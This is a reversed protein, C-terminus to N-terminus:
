TESKGNDDGKTKNLPKDDPYLFFGMADILDKVKIEAVVAADISSQEIAEFLTDHIEHLKGLVGTLLAFEVIYNSHEYAEPHKKVLEKKVISLLRRMELMKEARKKDKRPDSM